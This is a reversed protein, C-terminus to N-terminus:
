ERLNGILALDKPVRAILDDADSILQETQTMLAHAVCNDRDAQILVENFDRFMEFCDSDLFDERLLDFHYWLPFVYQEMLDHKEGYDDHILEFLQQIRDARERHYYVRAVNQRLTYIKDDSIDRHEWINDIQRLVGNHEQAALRWLHEFRSLHNCRRMRLLFSNRTFHLKSLQYTMDVVAIQAKDLFKLTQQQKTVIKRCTPVVLRLVDPHDLELQLVEKELNRYARTFKWTFRAHCSLKPAQWKPKPALTDLTADIYDIIKPDCQALGSREQPKIFWNFKKPQKPKKKGKLPKKLHRYLDLTNAADERPNFNLRDGIKPQFDDVKPCGLLSFFAEQTSKNEVSPRNEPEPEETSSKATEITHVRSFLKLILTSGSEVKEKSENMKFSTFESAPKDPVLSTKYRGVHKQYASGVASSKQNKFSLMRIVARKADFLQEKITETIM